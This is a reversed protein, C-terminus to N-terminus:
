DVVCVLCAASLVGCAASLVGCACCEICGDSPTVHNSAVRSVMMDVVHRVGAVIIMRGIAM